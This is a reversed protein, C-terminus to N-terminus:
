FRFKLSGQLSRPGGSEFIPALGSGPSGTGLMQNLMSTSQGFVPSNLYRVPDGFNAHNFLNYAEIRFELRRRETLRFERRLDFDLQTMGFGSFANRGLTGQVGPSTTQFAAPNLIRGGATGPAALWLPAGYVLDPRFANALSIGMYEDSNLVSIPFGSRARFIADVAWGGLFRAAPTTSKAPAFEYSVSGTLSHRLDFDSSGKDVSGAPSWVLFADSSDNDISHSWAYAVVSQLGRAVRRRYQMQLAQYDSAGSNTILAVYSTPSSGAGGMERRLLSHGGSGLCGISVVDHAGWARELSVNWQEVRPLRLDPM